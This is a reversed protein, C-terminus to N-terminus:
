FLQKIKWRDSSLKEEDPPQNSFVIVWPANFRVMASEYKSNFICGNKLAELAQYSVAGKNVRPVDFIVIPPTTGHKKIYETFGFLCDKNAGSLMIAGMTDVMYITTFTKGWNGEDEWYWHVSRDSPSPPEVYRRAIRLHKQKMDSAALRIVPRPYGASFRVGNPKRTDDKQTYAVAKADSAKQTQYSVNNGDNDMGLESMPRGKTKMLFVGQIHENGSTPCIEQQFSLRDLKAGLLDIWKQCRGNDKSFDTFVWKRARNCQKKMKKVKNITKKPSSASSLPPTFVTSPNSINGEERSRSSGSGGTKSLVPLKMTMAREMIGGDATSLTTSSPPVTFAPGGFRGNQADLRKHLRAQKALIAELREKEPVTSQGSDVLYESNLYERDHKMVAIVDNTDLSTTRVWPTRSKIPECSEQSWDIELTASTDSRKLCEAEAEQDAWAEAQRQGFEQPGKWEPDKELPDIGSSYSPKSTRHDTFSM